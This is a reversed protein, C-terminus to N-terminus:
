SYKQTSYKKRECKLLIIFSANTLIIVATKGRFFSTWVVQVDICIHIAWKETPFSTRLDNLCFIENQWLLLLLQIIVKSSIRYHVGLVVEHLYVPGFILFHCNMYHIEIWHALFIFIFLCCSHFRQRVAWNCNITFHQRNYISNNNRRHWILKSWIDALM